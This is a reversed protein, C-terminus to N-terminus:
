RVKTRLLRPPPRPRFTGTNVTGCPLPGLHYEYETVAGRGRVDFVQRVEEGLEEGHALPRGRLQRCTIPRPSAVVADPTETM